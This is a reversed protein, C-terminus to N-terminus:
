KLSIFGEDDIDVEGDLCADVTRGFWDDFSSVPDSYGRWGMVDAGSSSREWRLVQGVIGKPGPDLDICLFNGGGDEAFPIWGKSWIVPRCIGSGAYPSPQEAREMEFNYRNQIRSASLLQYFDFYPGGDHIQLATRLEAPLEQGLASELAKLDEASAPDRLDGYMRPSHERLWHELSEYLKGVDRAPRVPVAPPADREDRPVPAAVPVPLPDRNPDELRVGWRLFAEVVQVQSTLQVWPIEEDFVPNLLVLRAKDANGGEGLPVYDAGHYMYDTVLAQSRGPFALELEDTDIIREPAVVTHEHALRQGLALLARGIRDMDVPLYTGSLWFGLEYREAGPLPERFGLGVTVFFVHPDEEDDTAYYLVSIRDAPTGGVSVVGDATGMIEALFRRESEEATGM